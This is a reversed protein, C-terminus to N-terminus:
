LTAWGIEKPLSSLNRAGRDTVVYDDEIRVGGVGPLYIGPEVTVVDGARLEVDATMHSLRPDEHVDLGLGHGLGHGFRDGYGHREIHERAVRDVERTGVGARIAAASALQADRVIEYIERMARPWEGLCFTRTMDGHYGNVTAGWDILLPRGARTKTTGPRYHPLSGNAQAAVITTFSPQTSGRVKMEQELRACIELETQGPRITPLTALLAAEQIKIARRIEAIEAEDKVRRLDALLGHVPTLMKLPLKASRLQKRLHQENALTMHDAQVGLRTLRSAEHLRALEAAVAPLMGAKRMVVRVLPRVPELEEDYRFDSILVPKGSPGVIMTSDGGLFGTLYAVDNPQTVFLHDVDHARMATRLRKLREKHASLHADNTSAKAKRAATRAAVM